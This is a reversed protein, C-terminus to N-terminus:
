VIISFYLFTRAFFVTHTIFHKKLFASMVPHYGGSTITGFIFFGIRDRGCSLCHGYPCIRFGLSPADVM